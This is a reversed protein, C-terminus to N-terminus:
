LEINTVTSLPIASLNTHGFAVYLLIACKFHTIEAQINGLLNRESVISVFLSANFSILLMDTWNISNIKVWWNDNDNIEDMAALTCDSM